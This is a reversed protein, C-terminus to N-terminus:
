IKTDRIASKGQEKSCVAQMKMKGQARCTIYSAAILANTQTSNQPAALLLFLDRSISVMIELSFSLKLGLIGQEKGGPCCVCVSSTTTHFVLVLTMACTLVGPCGNQARLDFGSPLGQSFKLSGVQIRTKPVKHEYTDVPLTPGAPSRHSTCLSTRGM